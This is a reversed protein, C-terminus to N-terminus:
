EIFEVDWVVLDMANKGEASFEGGMSPISLLVEVGRSTSHVRSASICNVEEVTFGKAPSCSSM